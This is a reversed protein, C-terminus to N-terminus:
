LYLDLFMPMVSLYIGLIDIFLIVFNRDLPCDLHKFWLLIKLKRYWDEIVCGTWNPFLPKWVRYFPSSKLVWFSSFCIRMMSRRSYTEVMRPIWVQLFLLMIDLEFSDFELNTWYPRYMLLIYLGKAKREAAAEEKAKRIKKKKDQVQSSIYAFTDLIFTFSTPSSIVPVKKLRFFEERELEDLESVIYALTREIKPIIVHEIANVRFQFNDLIEINRQVSITDLIHFISSWLTYGCIFLMSRRIPCDVLVVGATQRRSSRTWPSSPPKCAQLSLLCTSQRRTTQRFNCIHCSEAKLDQISLLVLTNRLNSKGEIEQVATRGKGSWGVWQFRIRGIHFFTKFNIRRHSFPNKWINPEETLVQFAEFNPLNVGAVNDKKTKVKIQAQSSTLM